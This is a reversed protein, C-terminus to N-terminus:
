SVSLDVESIAADHMKWADIELMSAFLVFEKFYEAATQYIKM